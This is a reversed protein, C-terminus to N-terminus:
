IGAVAELEEEVQADSSPFKKELEQGNMGVVEVEPVVEPTADVKVRKREEEEEEDAKRKVATTTDVVEAMEEEVASVAPKALAPVASEAAVVADEQKVVPEVAEMVPEETAGNIIVPQSEPGELGSGSTANVVNSLPHPESKVGHGEAEPTM